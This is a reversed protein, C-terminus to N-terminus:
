ITQAAYNTLGFQPMPETYNKRLTRTPTLLVEAQEATILKLYNMVM